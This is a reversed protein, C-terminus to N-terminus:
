EAQTLLHKKLAATYREVVEGSASKTLILAALKHQEAFALGEETGLVM